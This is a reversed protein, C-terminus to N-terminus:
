AASRKRGLDLVAERFRKGTENWTLLDDHRPAVSGERAARTIARALGRIDGVRVLQDRDGVTEGVAAVGYAVTPVAFSMAEALAIGFSEMMSPMLFVDADAFVSPM